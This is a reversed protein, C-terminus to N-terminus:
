RRPAPKFCERCYVPRDGRPEFPVQTERQCEHCVADYLQRSDRPRSGSRQPAGQGGQSQSRGGNRRDGGSEYNGGQGNYGGGDQSGGGQSKNQKRIQRCPRCRKPETFGKERFFDQEQDTFVFSNSCDVCTIDIDSM